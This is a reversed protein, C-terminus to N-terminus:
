AAAIGGDVTDLAHESPAQTEPKETSSASGLKILLAFAGGLVIAFGVMMIGFGFSAILILATLASALASKIKTM